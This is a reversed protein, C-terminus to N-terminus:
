IRKIEMTLQNTLNLEERIRKLLGDIHDALTVHIIDNLKMQYRETAYSIIDEAIEFSVPEAGKLLETYRGKVEEDRKVQNKM